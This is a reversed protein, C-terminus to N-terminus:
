IQQREVYIYSKIQYNEEKRKIIKKVEVIVHIIEKMCMIRNKVM